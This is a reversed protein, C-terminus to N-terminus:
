VAIRDIIRAEFDPADDNDLCVMFIEDGKATLVPCRYTGDSLSMTQGILKGSSRQYALVRCNAAPKKAVDWVTGHAFNPVSQVCYLRMPELYTILNFDAKNELFYGFALSSTTYTHLLYVLGNQLFLAYATAAALSVGTALVAGHHFIMTELKGGIDRGSPNTNLFLAAQSSLHFRAYGNTPFFGQGNVRQITGSNFEAPSFALGADPMFVMGGVANAGDNVWMNPVRKVVDNDGVNDTTNNLVSGDAMLYLRMFAADADKFVEGTDFLAYHWTKEVGIEGSYLLNM